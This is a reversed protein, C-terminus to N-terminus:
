IGARGQRFGAVFAFFLAAVIFAVFLASGADPIPEAPTAPVTCVQEPVNWQGNYSANPHGYAHCYDPGFVGGLTATAWTGGAAEHGIMAKCAGVASTGYLWTGEVDVRWPLQGTTCDAM